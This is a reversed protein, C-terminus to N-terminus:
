FSLFLVHFEPCDKNLSLYIKQSIDLKKKKKFILEDSLINNFHM